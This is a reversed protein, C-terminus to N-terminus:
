QVKVRDVYHLVEVDELLEIRDLIYLCDLAEVFDEFPVKKKVKEYLEVPTLDVTKLERLIIPFEALTSKKYPTVRSPM